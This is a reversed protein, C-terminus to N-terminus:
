ITKSIGKFLKDLRQKNDDCQLQVSLINDSMNNLERTINDIKNSMRNELDNILKTINRIQDEKDMEIKRAINSILQSNITEYLQTKDIETGFKFERIYTRSFTTMTLCMISIFKSSFIQLANFAVEYYKIVTQTLVNYGLERTLISVKFNFKNWMNDTKLLDIIVLYFAVEYIFTNIFIQECDNKNIVTDPFMTTYYATIQYIEEQQKKLYICKLIDLLYTDDEKKNFSIFSNTILLSETINQIDEPLIGGAIKFDGGDYSYRISSIEKADRTPNIDLKLIDSKGTVNWGNETLLLKLPEIVSM